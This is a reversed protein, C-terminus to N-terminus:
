KREGVAANEEPQFPRIAVVQARDRAIRVLRRRPLWRAIRFVFFLRRELVAHEELIQVTRAAPLRELRRWVAAVRRFAAPRALRRERVIGDARLHRFFLRQPEPAVAIVHDLLVAKFVPADRRVPEVFPRAPPRERLAAGIPHAAVRALGDAAFANGARM